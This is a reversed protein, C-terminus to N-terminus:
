KNVGRKMIKNIVIVRNISICIIIMILSLSILLDVSFLPTSISGIAYFVFVAGIFRYKTLNNFFKISYLMLFVTILLGVIGIQGFISAYENDQFGKVTLGNLDYMQSYGYALNEENLFSIPTGYKTPGFGFWFDDTIFPLCLLKIRGSSFLIDPNFIDMYRSFIKDDLVMLLGGLLLIGISFYISTKLKNVKKNGFYDYIFYAILILIAIRAGSFLVLLVGGWLLVKLFLKNEFIKLYFSRLFMVNLVTFFAFTSYSSFLGYLQYTEENALHFESIFSEMRAFPSVLYEFLSYDINRVLAFLGSLAYLPLIISKYYFLFSFVSDEKRYYKNSFIAGLSVMAIFFKMEYLIGRIFQSNFEIGNYFCSFVAVLLIGLVSAYLTRSYNTTGNRKIVILSLVVICIWFFYSLLGFINGSGVLININLFSFFKLIFIASYSILIKKIM